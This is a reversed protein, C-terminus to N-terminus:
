GPFASPVIPASTIMVFPPVTTERPFTVSLEVFVRSVFVSTRAEPPVIRQWFRYELESEYGATAYKSPPM